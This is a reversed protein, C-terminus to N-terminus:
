FNSTDSAGISFRKEVGATVPASPCDRPAMMRDDYLSFRAAGGKGRNRRVSPPVDGPTKVRSNPDKLRAANVDNKTCFINQFHEASGPSPSDADGGVLPLTSPRRKPEAVVSTVVGVNADVGGGLKDPPLLCVKTEVIVPAENKRSLLNSKELAVGRDKHAGFLLKKLGGWNAWRFPAAVADSGNGPVNPQKPMTSVANQVYPIPTAPRPFDQTPPAHDTVPRRTSAHKSSRDVLAGIDGDRPAAPMLNREMCPNRGQYPQLPAM